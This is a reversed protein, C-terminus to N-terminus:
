VHSSNLRTSKRDVLRQVAVVLPNLLLAIFGSVVLLLIVERLRYVLKGALYFVIVAVITTLIARLPVGSAEAASWLAARRTEASAPGHAAPAAGAIGPETPEADDTM